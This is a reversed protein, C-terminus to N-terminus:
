PDNTDDRDFCEGHQELADKIVGRVIGVHNTIVNVTDAFTFEAGGGFAEILRDLERQKEPDSHFMTNIM